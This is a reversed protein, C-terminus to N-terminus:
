FSSATSRRRKKPHERPVGTVIVSSEQTLKEAAEWVGEPASQRSLVGQVIGSGDRLELFMVKGSSRVNYLWGKVVM